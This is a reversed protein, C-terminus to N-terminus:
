MSPTVMPVQSTTDPYRNSGATLVKAQYPETTTRPVPRPAHRRAEERDTTTRGM